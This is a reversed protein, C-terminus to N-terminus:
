NWLCTPDTGANTGGPGPLEHIAVFIDLDGDNDIDGVATAQRVDTVLGLAAPINSSSDVFLPSGPTVTVNEYYHIATPDSAISNAAFIDLDGDGDFDGFEAEQTNDIEGGIRAVAETM